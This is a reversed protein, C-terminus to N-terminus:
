DGSYTQSCMGFYIKTKGSNVKVGLEVDFIETVILGPDHGPYGEYKAKLNLKGFTATLVMADRTNVFKNTTGNIGQSVHAGVDAAELFVGDLSAGDDSFILKSIEGKTGVSATTCEFKFSEDALATTGAVM